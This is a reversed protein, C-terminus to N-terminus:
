EPGNGDYDVAAASKSLARESGGRLIM